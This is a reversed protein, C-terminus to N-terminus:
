PMSTFLADLVISSTTARSNTERTARWRPSLTGEFAEKVNIKSHWVYVQNGVLQHVGELIRPHGCLARFAPSDRHSTYLQRSAGTKERLNGDTERAQLAPIDRLLSAVEQSAFLEPLFLYGQEHFHALQSDSFRM